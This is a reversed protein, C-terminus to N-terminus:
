SFVERKVRHIMAALSSKEHLSLHSSQLVIKMEQSLPDLVIWWREERYFAVLCLGLVLVCAGVLIIEGGPNRSVQFISYPHVEIDAFVIRYRDDLLPSHDPYDKLIWFPTDMNSLGFVRVLLAPGLSQNNEEMVFDEVFQAPIVSLGSDSLEFKTHLTGETRMVNASQVDRLELALRLDEGYSDQYLNIGELSLPRNVQITSQQIVVGQKIIDVESTYQKPRYTKDDYFDVKFSRLRLSFPLPLLKVESYESTLPMTNSTQGERLVVQGEYGFLAAIMAGIMIILVGSHVTLVNFASWRGTKKTFIIYEEHSTPMFGHWRGNMRARVSEMDSVSLTQSQAQRSDLPPQPFRQKFKRFDRPLRDLTCVLLNTFFVFLLFLFWWSHYLDFLGLGRFLLVIVTPYIQEVPVHAQPEQVILTGIICSLLLLTLLGATLRVSKLLSWFRNLIPDIASM